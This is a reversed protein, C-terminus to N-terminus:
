YNQMLAAGLAFYSAETVVTFKKTFDPHVLIPDSKILIKIKEFANRYEEDKLNVKATKKLYKMIPYAVKSYDKIFRRYYGTIGLFSKIENQNTPLLIKYIAEVEIPIRKIGGDTILHGLFKTEQKMFNCKRLQVKLNAEKLCKLVKNLSEM